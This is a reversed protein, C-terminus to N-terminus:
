SLPVGLVGGVSVRIVGPTNGGSAVVRGSFTRVSGQVWQENVEGDATAGPLLPPVWGTGPGGVWRLSVQGGGAAGRGAPASSSGARACAGGAVRSGWATRRASSLPLHSRVTVWFSAMARHGWLGALGWSPSGATVTTAPWAGLELAPHRAACVAPVAGTEQRHGRWPWLLSLGPGASPSRPCRPRLWVTQDGSVRAPARGSQGGSGPLRCISHAVVLVPWGSRADTTLGGGALAAM